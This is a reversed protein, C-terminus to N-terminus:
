DSIDPSVGHIVGACTYNDFLDTYEVHAWNTSTKKYRATTFLIGRSVNKVILIGTYKTLEKAITLDNLQSLPWSLPISRFIIKCSNDTTPKGRTAANIQRVVFLKFHRVTM